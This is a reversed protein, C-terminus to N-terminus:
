ATQFRLASGRLPSDVRVSVVLGRTDFFAEPRTAYDLSDIQAIILNEVSRFHPPCIFYIKIEVM